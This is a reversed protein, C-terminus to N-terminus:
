DEAENEYRVEIEPLEASQGDHYVKLKMGDALYAVMSESKDSALWEDATRKCRSAMLRGRDYRKGTHPNSDEIVMLLKM